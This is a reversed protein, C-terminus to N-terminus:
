SNRDKKQKVSLKFFLFKSSINEISLLANIFYM